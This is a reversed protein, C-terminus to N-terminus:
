KKYGLISKYANMVDNIPIALGGGDNWSITETYGIVNGNKDYVESQTKDVVKRTVVGIVEGYENILPGGSNGPNVAADFQIYNQDNQFKREAFSIHGATLTWAYSLSEPSGIAVVPEGTKLNSSNGISMASFDKKGNAEIQLVAVDVSSRSGILKANYTKVTNDAGMVSVLIGGTKKSAKEIVHHNTIIHGDNTVIFGSGYGVGGDDTTIQIAVTSPSCLEAIETIELEGNSTTDPYREPVFILVLALVLLAVGFASVMMIVFSRVGSKQKKGKEEKVTEMGANWHYVYRPTEPVAEVSPEDVQSLEERPENNINEESM